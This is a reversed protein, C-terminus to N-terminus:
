TQVISLSRRLNAQRLALKILLDRIEVRCGKVVVFVRYGCPQKELRYLVLQMIRDMTVRRSFQDYLPCIGRFFM